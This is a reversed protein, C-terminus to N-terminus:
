FRNILKSLKEWLQKSPNSDWFFMETQNSFTNMKLLTNTIIIDPHQPDNQQSIKIKEHFKKILEKRISLEEYLSVDM